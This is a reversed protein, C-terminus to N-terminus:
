QHQQLFQWFRDPFESRIQERLEILHQQNYKCVSYCSDLFSALDQQCLDNVVSIIREARDTSSDIQDFSEDIVHSFTQFGLNRLDRYYGANAVAIWPHGMALPKVIKETRFSHSNEGFVTETVVSFYTDRYPEAQLYVEGWTNKFLDHKVFKRDSPDINLSTNQYQSYEYKSPLHQIPTIESFLDVGNEILQMEGWRAPRSDLMTWLAQDLLGLQRFRQWLYKRHTRAVGNLFLFKYPKDTQVYLEDIRAMQQLNHEYGLFVNIFYDYRIYSYDAPLEGGSIVLLHGSLVLDDVGLSKLQQQLTNSGEAAHDFIMIYDQSLALQRVLPLNKMLQQHGVLYISGPVPVCDKFEWFEEAAYPKLLDYVLSATDIRLNDLM